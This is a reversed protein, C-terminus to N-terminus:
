PFHHREGEDYPIPSFTTVTGGKTIAMCSKPETLIFGLIILFPQPHTVAKMESLEQSGTPVYSPSLLRTLQCSLALSPVDACRIAHLLVQSAM